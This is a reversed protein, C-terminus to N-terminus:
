KEKYTLLLERRATLGTLIHIAGGTVDGACTYTQSGEAVCRELDNMRDRLVKIHALILKDTTELEAVLSFEHIV